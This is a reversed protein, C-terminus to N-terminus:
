NKLIKWGKHSKRKENVLESIKGNSFNYKQKFYYQTSQEITGDKHVFVYIKSDYNSANEGFQTPRLLSMTKSGRERQARKIEETNRRAIAEPTNLADRTAQNKREKVGPKNLAIKIRKGRYSLFEDSTIDVYFKASGTSINLYDSRKSVKLRSLVRYEWARAINIDKFTKRVEIVDPDGYQKVYERVYKSSTFYTTWLDSPDCNKAWRVGYYHTKTDSWYLYYTYAKIKM